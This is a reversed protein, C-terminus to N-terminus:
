SIGLATLGYRIIWDFGAIVVGLVVSVVIVLASQKALEEKKPWTCKKFESKLSKFFSTKSTKEAESM